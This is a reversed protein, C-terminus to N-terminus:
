LDEGESYFTLSSIISIGHTVFRRKNLKPATEEESSFAAYMIIYRLPVRRLYILKHINYDYKMTNRSLSGASMLVRFRKTNFTSITICRVYYFLLIFYRDTRV